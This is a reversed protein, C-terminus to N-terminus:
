VFAFEGRVAEGGDIQQEGGAIGTMEDVAMVKGEGGAAADFIGGAGAADDRLIGFLGHIGFKTQGAGVCVISRGFPRSVDELQGGVGGKLSAAVNAEDGGFRHRVVQEFEGGGAGGGCVSVDVQGQAAQM